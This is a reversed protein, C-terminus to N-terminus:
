GTFGEKRKQFKRKPTSGGIRKLHGGPSNTKYKKRQRRTINARRETHISSRERKPRGAKKKSSWWEETPMHRKVEEKHRLVSKKKGREDWRASGGIESTGGWEGITKRMFEGEKDYEIRSDFVVWRRKRTAGKQCGELRLSASRKRKM